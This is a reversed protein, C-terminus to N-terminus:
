SATKLIHYLQIRWTNDTNGGGTKRLGDALINFPHASLKGFLAIHSLNFNNRNGSGAIASGLKLAIM